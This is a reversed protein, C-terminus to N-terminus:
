REVETEGPNQGEHIQGEHIQGGLIQSLAAMPIALWTPRNRAEYVCEYVAKDAVYAALLVSLAAGGVSGWVGIFTDSDNAFVVRVFLEAIEFMLIAGVFAGVIGLWLRVWLRVWPRVWLRSM